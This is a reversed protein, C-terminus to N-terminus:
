DKKLLDNFTFMGCPTGEDENDKDDIYTDGRTEEIYDDVIDSIFDMNLVNVFCHNVIRDVCEEIDEATYSYNRHDFYDKLKVRLACSLYEGDIGRPMALKHGQLVETLWDELKFYFEGYFEFDNLIYSALRRAEKPNQLM